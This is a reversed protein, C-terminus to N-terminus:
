HHVITEYMIKQLEAVSYNAVTIAFCKMSVGSMKSIAHHCIYQHLRHGGEINPSDLVLMKKQIAGISESIVEVVECM